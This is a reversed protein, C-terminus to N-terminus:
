LAEADRFLETLQDLLVKRLKIWVKIPLNRWAEGDSPDGPYPWETVVKLKALQQYASVENVGPSQVTRVFEEFDGITLRDMNVYVGPLGPIATIEVNAQDTM